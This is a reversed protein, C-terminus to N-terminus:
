IRSCSSSRRSKLSAAKTDLKQWASLLMGKGARLALQEDTRLEAGEGRATTQSSIREQTLWGLNLQSAGHDSALQASIQGPMDDFRLRNARTGRVERSKMGSLYRNGPLEGADSLAVPQAGHNYLQCIIIPQDPDGGPVHPVPEVQAGPPDVQGGHGRHDVRQLDVHHSQLLHVALLRAAAAGVLHGRQGRRQAPVPHERGRQEPCGAAAPPGACSASKM